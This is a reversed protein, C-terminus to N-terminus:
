RCKSVIKTTIGLIRSNRGAIRSFLQSITYFLNSNNGEQREINQFLAELKECGMDIDGERAITYFAMM